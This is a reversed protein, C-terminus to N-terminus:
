GHTPLQACHSNGDIDIQSQSAAREDAPASGDSRASPAGDTETPEAAAARDMPQDGGATDCAAGALVICALMLSGRITRAAVTAPLREASLLSESGAEVRQPSSNQLKERASM